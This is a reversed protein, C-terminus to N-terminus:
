TTLLSKKTQTKRFSFEKITVLSVLQLKLEYIFNLLVFFPEKDNENKLSENRM